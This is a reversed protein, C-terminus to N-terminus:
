QLDFCTANINYELITTNVAIYLLLTFIYICLPTVENLHNLDISVVTSTLLFGIKSSVFFNWTLTRMVSYGLFCKYMFVLFISTFVLFQVYVCPIHVYVCPIPRLCLSNSTFVLFQVLCLSYPCLCLSNSTFVLFISRFVLFQVYVCPIHVYVCPIPRLCLSYPRLCLSNSTFVLFLHIFRWM